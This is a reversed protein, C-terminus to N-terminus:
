PMPPSPSRLLLVLLLLSIGTGYPLCWLWVVAMAVLPRRAWPMGLAFALACVIMAEGILISSAAVFASLPDLVVRACLASAVDAIAGGRAATSPDVLACAGGIVM